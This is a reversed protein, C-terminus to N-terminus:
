IIPALTYQNDLSVIVATDLFNLIFTVHLLIHFKLLELQLVKFHSVVVMFRGIRKMKGRKLFSSLSLM